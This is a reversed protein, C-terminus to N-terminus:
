GRQHVGRPRAALEEVEERLEGADGPPPLRGHFVDCTVKEWLRSEYGGSGSGGGAGVMRPVTRVQVDSVNHVQEGLNGIAEELKAAIQENTAQEDVAVAFTIVVEKVAKGHGHGHAGHEP